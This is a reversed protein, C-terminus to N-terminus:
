FEVYVQTQAVHSPEQRERWRREVSARLKLIPNTQHKWAYTVGSGAWHEVEAENKYAYKTNWEWQPSLAFDWFAQGAFFPETRAAGFRPTTSGFAAEARLMARGKEVTADVGVRRRITEQAPPFSGRGCADESDLMSGYLASAGLRATEQEVGLRGSFAGGGSRRADALEFCGGGMTAAVAYDVSKVYGSIQVGADNRLGYFDEEHSQLLLHETNFGTALLGFPLWFIGGRTKWKGLPGHLQFYLQDFAPPEHENWDLDAFFVARDGKETSFVSRMTAGARAFWLSDKDNADSSVARGDLRLSYANIVSIDGASASWAASLLLVAAAM